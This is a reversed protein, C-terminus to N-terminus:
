KQRRLDTCSAVRGQPSLQLYCSELLDPELLTGYAYGDSDVYYLTGTRSLVGIISETSRPSSFTGSFRRGDQMDIKLTFTVSSLRPAEEPSGTHHPNAAGSVISESQGVWTGRVDPFTAQALAPAAGLVALVVIWGM